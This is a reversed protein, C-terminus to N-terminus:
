ESLNWLIKTSDFTCKISIRRFSRKKPTYKIDKVNVKKVESIAVNCAKM